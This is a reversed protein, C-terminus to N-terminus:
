VWYMGRMPDVVQAAYLSSASKAAQTELADSWACNAHDYQPM